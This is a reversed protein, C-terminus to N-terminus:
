WKKWDTPPEKKAKVFIAIAEDIGAYRNMFDESYIKAYSAHGEHVAAGDCVEKFVRLRVSVINPQSHGIIGAIETKTLGLHRYFLLIAMIQAEKIRGRTSSKLLVRVPIEYNRAIAELIRNRLNTRPSHAEVAYLERLKAEIRRIGVKKDLLHFNRIFAIVDPSIDVQPSAPAPRAIHRGNKPRSTRSRAAGPIRTKIKKRSKKRKGLPM